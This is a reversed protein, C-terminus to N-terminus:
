LDKPVIIRNTLKSKAIAFEEPVLRELTERIANALSSERTADMAGILIVVTAALKQTDTM